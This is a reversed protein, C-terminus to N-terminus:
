EKAWYVVKCFHPEQWKTRTSKEIMAIISQLDRISQDKGHIKLCKKIDAQMKRFICISFCNWCDLATKGAFDDRIQPDSLVIKELIDALSRFLNELKALKEKASSSKQISLDADYLAKLNRESRHKLIENKMEKTLREYAQCCELYVADESVASGCITCYAINTAFWLNCYICRYKLKKGCKGCVKWDPFIEAECNPCFSVSTGLSTNSAGSLNMQNQKDLHKGLRAGCIPCAVWDLKIPGDCMPCASDELEGYKNIKTM